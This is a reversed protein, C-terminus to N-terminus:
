THQIIVSNLRPPWPQPLWEAQFQDALLLSDPLSANATIKRLNNAKM